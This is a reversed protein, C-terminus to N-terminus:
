VVQLGFMLRYLPYVRVDEAGHASPDSALVADRAAQLADPSTAEIMLVWGVPRDPAAGLSLATTPSVPEGSAGIWGHAAAVQRMTVLDAVIREVWARLRVEAGAAPHFHVVCAFGGVGQGADAIVDCIARQMFRFNTTVRRTWPTPNDLQTRYAGTTLIDLTRAEYLAMYQPSGSMAQYRRGRMMGPVSTREPIHERLYWDNFDDEIAPDVDNWVGLIAKGLLAM